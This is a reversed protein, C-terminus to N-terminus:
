HTHTNTKKSYGHNPGGKRLIQPRLGMLTLILDGVRDTFTHM